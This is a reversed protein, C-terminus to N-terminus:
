SIRLAEELTAGREVLQGGRDYDDDNDHTLVGVVKGDRAFWVTFATDDHAVLRAEDYGDGWAHYKLTRAGIESWFGPPQAWEDEAGAASAGAVEGMRVADGWHEVRLRRGAAANHAFAIDGAAYVNAVDTRMASDTRVLGDECGVGADVVWDTDHHVGAAVLVLDAALSRGDALRVTHGDGLGAVEVGGLLRVGDEELWGAIRVAAEAGFRAEQPLEEQSVMVVDRGGAALSCAAECGIFGSGVV